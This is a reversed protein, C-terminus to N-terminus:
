VSVTGDASTTGASPANGVRPLTVHVYDCATVSGSWPGDFIYACEELRAATHQKLLLVGVVPLLHPVPACDPVLVRLGEIMEDTTVAARATPIFSAPAPSSDIEVVHQQGDFVLPEGLHRNTTITLAGYSNRIRTCPSVARLRRTRM